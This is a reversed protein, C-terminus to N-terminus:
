RCDMEDAKQSEWQDASKAVTRAEMQGAWHHAKWAVTPAARSGGTGGARRRETSCDRAEARQDGTQFGTWGVWSAVRAVALHFAMLLEWEVAMPVDWCDAM